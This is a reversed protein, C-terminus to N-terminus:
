VPLIQIAKNPLHRSCIIAAAAVDSTLGLGPEAGGQLKSEKHQLRRMSQQLASEHKADSGKVSLQSRLSDVRCAFSCAFHLYAHRYALLDGFVVKGGLQQHQAM